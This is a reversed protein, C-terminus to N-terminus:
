KVNVYLKQECATRGVRPVRNSLKPQITQLNKPANLKGHLISNHVLLLWFKGSGGGGEEEEEELM